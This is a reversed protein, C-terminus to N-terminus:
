GPVHPFGPWTGDNVMPLARARVPQFREKPSVIRTPAIIFLTQLFTQLFTRLYKTQLPKITFLRFNHRFNFRVQWRENVIGGKKPFGGFNKLVVVTSYLVLLLM